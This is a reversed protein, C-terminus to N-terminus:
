MIKVFYNYLLQTDLNDSLNKDSLVSSIIVLLFLSESARKDRIRIIDTKLIDEQRKIVSPM